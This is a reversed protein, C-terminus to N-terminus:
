KLWSEFIKEILTQAPQQTITQLIIGAIVAAAATRWPHQSCWKAPGWRAENARHYQHHEEFRETMYIRLDNLERRLQAVSESVHRLEASVRGHWFNDDPSSM